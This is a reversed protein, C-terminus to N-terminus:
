FPQCPFSGMSVRTGCWLTWWKLELSSPIERLLCVADWYPIRGSVWLPNIIKQLSLKGPCTLWTSLRVSLKMPNPFTCTWKMEMSILTIPPVCQYTLDLLLTPYFGLETVWWLCEISPPSDTSSSSIAMRYADRWLSVLISENVFKLMPTQTISTFPKFASRNPKPIM